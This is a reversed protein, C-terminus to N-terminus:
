LRIFDSGLRGSALSGDLIDGLSLSRSEPRSGPVLRDVPKIKLKLMSMPNQKLGGLDPPQCAALFIIAAMLMFFASNNWSSM